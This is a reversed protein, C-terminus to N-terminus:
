VAEEFHVPRFGPSTALIVVDALAIAKKYGDFDTYQHDPPVIIKDGHKGKLDSLRDALHDPLVDAMAVLKTNCATSLAQDAAGAGRKGCGVLALKLVDNAAAHVSREIPLASVLSAGVLASSGARLFERRNLSTSHSEIAPKEM